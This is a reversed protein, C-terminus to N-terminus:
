WDFSKQDAKIGMKVAQSALVVRRQVKGLAADFYRPGRFFSM